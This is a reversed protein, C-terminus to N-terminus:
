KNPCVERTQAMSQNRDREDQQEIGAEPNVSGEGGQDQEGELGDESPDFVVPFGRKSVADYEYRVSLGSLDQSTKFASLFFLTFNDVLWIDNLSVSQTM